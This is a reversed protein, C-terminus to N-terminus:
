DDIVEYEIGRRGRGGHKRLKGANQLRQTASWATNLHCGVEESIEALSLRARHTEPDVADAILEYICKDILRM